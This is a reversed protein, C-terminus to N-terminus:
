GRERNRVARDADRKADREAIARRKDYTHRGRALALEVKARGNDFYVALPVLTLSDQQTRAALEDIERRHLLLKRTRDPDVAGWASANAYPAVHMGHLWMEGNDVRAFSDRLQVQGARLSKVESGKLAIGCEFTELVTFDHRAKRNQAVPKTGKPPM